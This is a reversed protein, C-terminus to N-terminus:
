SWLVRIDKPLTAIVDEIEGASIHKRILALAARVCAQPDKNPDSAFAEEVAAVFDEATKHRVPTRAPKWGEYYVGRWLTPLQAAFDTTENIQLRDRLVHFTSRLLRYARGKDDWDLMDMLEKLWTNADLITKDFIPLGLASM